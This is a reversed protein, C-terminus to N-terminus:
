LGTPLANNHFFYHNVYPWPDKREIRVINGQNSTLVHWVPGPARGVLVMFLGPPPTHNSLYEEATQHKKGGALCDIVPIHNAKAFGRIRRSFHGAMRMLHEDDLNEDSGNLLRWWNRFGGGTACGPLYANIVFRDVCDYKGELLDQYKTTFQDSM